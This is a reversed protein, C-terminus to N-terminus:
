FVGDHRSPHDNLLSVSVDDLSSPEMWLSKPTTMDRQACGDRRFRELRVLHGLRRRGRYGTEPHVGNLFAQVNRRSRSTELADADADTAVTITSRRPPPVRGNVQV